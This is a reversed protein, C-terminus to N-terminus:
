FGSFSVIYLKFDTKHKQLVFLIFPVYKKGLHIAKNQKTRVYLIKSLSMENELMKRRHEHMKGSYEHM